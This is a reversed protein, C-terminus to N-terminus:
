MRIAEELNRVLADRGELDRLLMKLEEAQVEEMEAAIEASEELERITRNLDANKEELNWVKDSLIEITEELASTQDIMDKLEKVEFLTSAHKTKLSELEAQLEERSTSDSQYTKIQRQLQNRELESQERLRILATRLRTNQLTLSRTVDQDAATATSAGADPTAGGGAVADDLASAEAARDSELQAKADELELQTSELDIKMEELQDEIMEKEQGLQEKDLVLEELTSELEMKDNELEENKRQLSTLEARLKALAAHSHDQMSSKDSVREQVVKLERELSGIQSTLVSKDANYSKLEDSRAQKENRYNETAQEFRTTVNSIREEAEILQNQLNVNASTLDSLQQKLENNREVLAQSVAAAAQNIVENETDDEDEEEDDDEDTDEAATGSKEGGERVKSEELKLEADLSRRGGKDPTDKGPTATAGRSATMPTSGSKKAETLALAGMAYMRVADHTSQEAGRSMFDLSSQLSTCEITKKKLDGELKSIKDQLRSLEARYGPTASQLNIKPLSSPVSASPAEEQVDIEVEKEDNSVEVEKTDRTSATPTTVSRDRVVSSSSINSGRERALAERKARLEELKSTGGAKGGVSTAPAPSAGVSKRPTTTGGSPLATAAVSSSGSSSSSSVVPSKIARSRTRVGETAASSATATTSRSRSGSAGAAVGASGAESLERRLRLEELRSLSRKKVNNKKAFMGNNTYNAGADFYHVGKVSGDNKGKGVSAGTLRIGVWDNGPAFQVPGLHAVIGELLLPDADATSGTSEITVPDNLRFDDAM